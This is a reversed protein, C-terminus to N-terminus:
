SLPEKYNLVGIAAYKREEAPFHGEAAEDLRRWRLYEDGDGRVEKARQEIAEPTRARAFAAISEAISALDGALVSEPHSDRFGWDDCWVQWSDVFRGERYRGERPRRVYIAVETGQIHIERGHHVEVEVGLGRLADALDNVPITWSRSM